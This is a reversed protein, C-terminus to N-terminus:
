KMTWYRRSCFGLDWSGTVSSKRSASNSFSILTSTLYGPKTSGTTAQTKSYLLLFAIFTRSKSHSDIESNYLSSIIIFCILGPIIQLYPCQM